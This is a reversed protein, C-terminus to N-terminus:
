DDSVEVLEPDCMTIRIFQAYVEDPHARLECDAARILEDQAQQDGDLLKQKWEDTWERTLYSISFQGSIELRREVRGRPEKKYDTDM